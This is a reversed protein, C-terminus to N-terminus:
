GGSPVLSEIGFRGLASAGSPAGGRRARSPTVVAPEGILDIRPAEGSDYLGQFLGQRETLASSAASNESEKKAKFLISALGEPNAVGDAELRGVISALLEEDSLSSDGITNKLFSALGGAPMGTKAVDVMDFIGGDNNQKELSATQVNRLASRSGEVVYDPLVGNTIYDVYPVTESNDTPIENGADRVNGPGANYAAFALPWTGFKDKMATLYRMGFDVNAEPDKLLSSDMPSVEYGPNEATSPKIQMLGVAGSVPHTVGSRFTSEKHVQRLAMEPPIGYETAKRVVLEYLNM